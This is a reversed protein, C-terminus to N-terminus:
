HSQAFVAGPLREFRPRTALRKEACCLTPYHPLKRLRLAARLDSWDGLLAILGRYDQGLLQKLCRLAFPQPQTFDKGSISLSTRLRAASIVV